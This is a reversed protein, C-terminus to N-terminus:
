RTRGTLTAIVATLDNPDVPKSVHVQFGAALAAREADKSAFATLAVAPLNSPHLGRGRVQRILDLGDEEPMGLDSVMVTPTIKSLIDLAERASSALLVKAGAHQLVRELLRRADAEDDVLLVRIGELRVLSSADSIEMRRLERDSGGGTAPAMLEEEVRVARIPLLVIFTSGKGEGESEARVTGGHAEVIHKVISLGLGLGGFKRKSSSDAQRFREFVYPLLDAGMGQGNDKVQIRVHSRERELTV